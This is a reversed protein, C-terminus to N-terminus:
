KENHHEKNSLARMLLRARRARNFTRLDQDQNHEDIYASLVEKILQYQRNSINHM